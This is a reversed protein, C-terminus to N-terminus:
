FSNMFEIITEKYKEDDGWFIPIDHRELIKLVGSYEKQKFWDSLCYMYITKYNPFYIEFLEKKVPGTQIKEDVSGGTQQFKKEIIFITKNEHNIYAEDPRKCGSAPVEETNMENMKKMIDFLKGKEALVFCKDYGNFVIEQTGTYSYRLSTQEEYSLGNVNTNAGGAGTGRNIRPLTMKRIELIRKLEKGAKKSSNDLIKAADDFDCVRTLEALLELNALTQM